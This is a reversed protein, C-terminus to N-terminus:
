LMGRIFERDSEEPYENFARKVETVHKMLEDINVSDDWVCYYYGGAGSREDAAFCPHKAFKGYQNLLELRWGDSHYFRLSLNSSRVIMNNLRKTQAKNPIGSTM